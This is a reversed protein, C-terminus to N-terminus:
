TPATEGAVTIRKVILTAYCGRPLELGLVLRQRGAHLDDLGTEHELRTPRCVAAREGRSFYLERIGKVRLQSPELGEEALVSRVIGSRPDADDLHLRASPLPLALDALARRQEADLGRYMPFEGLRLAVPLLQEPRCHQRLLRALMRNWLDSQYASLYLGRLEPRLRAVAGRFDGSHHLLYDVLSRAHGRPLREKCAAWDGWSARLVSKEQKQATRDHEYPGTLALRLADEFRGLVLLRGVFDGGSTVSGFRQDDFYNPVGDASVEELSRLIDATASGTLNRLTIRFYNARIDASTYPAHVQGLYTITVGQHTLGRRPGHFVTLYQITLAHRDKLGGYSLRRPEIKWRRRLAALADPTSWGRKELRYLAFPGQGTPAVDTLEEVQFDEPQQKLKYKAGQSQEVGKPM